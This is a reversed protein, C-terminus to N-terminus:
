REGVGLACEQVQQQVPPFDVRRDQRGVGGQLSADLGLRQKLPLGEVHSAM